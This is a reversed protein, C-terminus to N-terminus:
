IIKIELIKRKIGIEILEEVLDNLFSYAREIAAISKEEGVIKKKLEDLALDGLIRKEKGEIWEKRTFVLVKGDDIKM